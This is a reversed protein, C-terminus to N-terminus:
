YKATLQVGVRRPYLPQQTNVTVAAPGLDNLINEAFVDIKFIKTEVGLRAAFQNLNASFLGSGLDQQRDRYSYSSNFNLRLNDSLPTSYNAGLTFNGLPVGPLQRGDRAQTQAAALAPNVGAFQSSNINGSAQLTLGKLPTRWSATLEVGYLRANGGNVTSPLGFPTSFPIQINTWDTYYVAGDLLLTNDALKLKTGLEYSWLSDPNLINGATSVGSLQGLISQVPTQITGSRFGRAANFYVTTNGNPKYALNFRPSVATFNGNTSAFGLQPLILPLLPATFASGALIGVLLPANTVGSALRDDNFYRIGFLPVLKGDFLDYSAEGFVAFNRTTLPAGATGLYQLNGALAPITVSIDSTITADTYTGGLIWKFPSSTNSVLRLEENFSNTRFRAESRVGAGVVDYQLEHNTYSTGSELAVPGLDWKISASYFTATTGIYPDTVTGTDYATPPNALMLNNGYAQRAYIHWISADITLNDAPKLYLKGRVNYSDTGNVDRLNVTPIDAFGSLREYGGSVRFGAVDSAIPVNVAGDVAYNTGGGDTGSVEGQLKGSWKETNPRTTVLRISGGLAGNGYLTGQPGRLVEVRELDILRAPPALQLNPISFAIDDIYYGVTADGVTGSSIGRIQITEFGPGTRSVVSAGPISNVLQDLEKTGRRELEAGTIAQISQPVNILTQERKQATVVIDAPNAEDDAAAANGAAPAAQALSASPTMAVLAALSVGMLATARHPSMM